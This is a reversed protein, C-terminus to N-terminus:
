KRRVNRFYNSLSSARIRRRKINELKLVLTHLLTKSAHLFIVAVIPFVLAFCLIDDNQVLTHNTLNRICHQNHNHQFIFRETIQFLYIDEYCLNNKYHNTQTRCFSLYINISMNWRMFHGNDIWKKSLHRWIIWCSNEQLFICLTYDKKFLLFYVNNNGTSM